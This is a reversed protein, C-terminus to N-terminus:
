SITLAGSIGIQCSVAVFNEIPFSVDRQRVVGAGSFTPGTTTTRDGDFSFTKAEGPTLATLLGAAAVTDLLWNLTFAAGPVGVLQEKYTQGTIAQEVIDASSALDVATLGDIGWTGFTAIMNKGSFKM